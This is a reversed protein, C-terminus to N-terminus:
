NAMRPKSPGAMTSKAMNDVPEMWSLGDVGLGAAFTCQCGESDCAHRMGGTKSRREPTTLAGVSSM